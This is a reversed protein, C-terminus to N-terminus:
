KIKNKENPNPDVIQVLNKLNKFLKTSVNRLKSKSIPIKPTPSKGSVIIEGEESCGICYVRAKHGKPLKTWGEEEIGGSTCCGM